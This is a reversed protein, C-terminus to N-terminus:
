DSPAEMRLAFWEEGQRKVHKRSDIKAALLVLIMYVGLGAFFHPVGDFVWITAFPIVIGLGLVRPLWHVGAAVISTDREVVTGFADLVHRRRERRHFTEVEISGDHLSRVYVAADGDDYLKEVAALQAVTRPQWGGFDYPIHACVRGAPENIEASHSSLLAGVLVLVFAVAFPAGMWVDGNEPRFAFGAAVILPLSLLGSYVLRRGIRFRGPADHTAAKETAGSEYAVYRCLEGNKRVLLETTGVEGECLLSADPELERALRLAASVSQGTPIRPRSWANDAM